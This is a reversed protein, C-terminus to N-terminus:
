SNCPAEGGVPMPIYHSFENTRCAVSGYNIIARDMGISADQKIYFVLGEAHDIAEKKTDWSMEDVFSVGDKKFWLLTWGRAKIPEDEGTCDILPKDSYKLM